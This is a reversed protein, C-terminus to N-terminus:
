EQVSVSHGFVWGKIKGDSVEYWYIVTGDVISQKGKRKSITVEVKRPM